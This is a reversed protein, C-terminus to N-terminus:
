DQQPDANRVKLLGSPPGTSPDGADCSEPSALGSTLLDELRSALWCGPEGRSLGLRVAIRSSESERVRCWDARVSPTVLFAVLVPPSWPLELLELSILPLCLLLYFGYGARDPVRRIRPDQTRTGAPARREDGTKHGSRAVPPERSLFRWLGACAGEDCPRRGRHRQGARQVLRTLYM